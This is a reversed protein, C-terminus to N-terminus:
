FIIDWFVFRTADEDLRGTVLKDNIVGVPFQESSLECYGILKFDNDRMEFLSQPAKVSKWNQLLFLYGRSHKFVGHLQTFSARYEREERHGKVTKAAKFDVTLYRGVIDEGSDLTIEKNKKIVLPKVSGNKVASLDQYSVENSNCYPMLLVTLICAFILKLIKM